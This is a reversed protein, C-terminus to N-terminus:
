RGCTIHRMGTKEGTIDDDVMATSAPAQSQGVGDAHTDITANKPGHKTIIMQKKEASSPHVANSSLMKFCATAVFADGSLM